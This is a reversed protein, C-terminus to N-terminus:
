FVCQRRRMARMLLCFLVLFILIMPTRSCIKNSSLTKSPPHPSNAWVGKRKTGAPGRLHSMVVSPFSRNGLLLGAMRPHHSKIHRLALRPCWVALHLTAMLETRPPHVLVSELFTKSMIKFLEDM